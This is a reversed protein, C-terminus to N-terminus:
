SGEQSQPSGNAQQRPLGAKRQEAGPLFAPLGMMAGFLILLGTREADAVVTEHAAGLLGGGFLIIDRIKPWQEYM